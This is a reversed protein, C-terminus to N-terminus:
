KGRAWRENVIARAVDGAEYISRLDEYPAVDILIRIAAPSTQFTTTELTLRANALRLANIQDQLTPEPALAPTLAQDSVTAPMEAPLAQDSVASPTEANM